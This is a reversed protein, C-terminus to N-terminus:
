GDLFSFSFFFILQLFYYYPSILIVEYALENCDSSSRIRVPAPCDISLKKKGRFSRQPSGPPSLDTVSPSVYPFLPNLPPTSIGHNIISESNPGTELNNM